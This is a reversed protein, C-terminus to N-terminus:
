FNVDGKHLHAVGKKDGVFCQYLLSEGNDGKNRYRKKIIAFLKVVIPL